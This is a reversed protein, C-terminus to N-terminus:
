EQSPLFGPKKISFWQIGGAEIMGPCAQLGPIVTHSYSAKSIIAKM